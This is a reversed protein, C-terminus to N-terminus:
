VVILKDCVIWVVLAAVHKKRAGISEVVKSYGKGGERTAKGALKTQEDLEDLEFRNRLWICYNSIQSARGVKRCLVLFGPM